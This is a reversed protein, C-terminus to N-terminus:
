IKYMNNNYEINKWVTKNIEIIVKLNTQLGEGM